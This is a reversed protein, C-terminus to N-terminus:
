TSFQQRIANRDDGCGVSQVVHQTQHRLPERSSVYDFHISCATVAALTAEVSLLEVM